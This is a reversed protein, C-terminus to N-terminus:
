EEASDLIEIKEGKNVPKWFWCREGVLDHNGEYVKEVRLCLMSGVVDEVIGVGDFSVQRYKQKLLRIRKGVLSKLRPM